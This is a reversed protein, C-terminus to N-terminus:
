RQADSGHVVGEANAASTVEMPAILLTGRQSVLQWGPEIIRAPEGPLLNSATRHDRNDFPVTEGVEGVRELGANLMAPELVARAEPDANDQWAFVLQHCLHQQFEIDGESAPDPRPPRERPGPPVTGNAPVNMGSTLRQLEEFQRDLDRRARDLAALQDSAPKKIVQRLETSRNDLAERQSEIRKLEEEVVNLLAEQALEKHPNACKELLEHREAPTRRMLLLEIGRRTITVYRVKSASKGKGEEVERITFLGLEPDLCKDMAQTKAATARGGPLLGKQKGATLLRCEGEHELATELAALVLDGVEQKAMSMQGDGILSVPFAFHLEVDNGVSGM